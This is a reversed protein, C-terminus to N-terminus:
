QRGEYKGKEGKSSLNFEETAKKSVKKKGENGTRSEICEEISRKM